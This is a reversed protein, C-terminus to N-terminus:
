FVDSPYFEPYLDHFLFVIKISLGSIFCALPPAKYGMGVRFVDLIPENLIIGKDDTTIRLANLPKEARNTLAPHHKRVAQLKTLIQLIIIKFINFPFRTFLVQHKMETKDYIVLSIQLLANRICLYLSHTHTVATSAM